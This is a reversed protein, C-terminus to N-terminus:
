RSANRVEFVRLGKGGGTQGRQKVWGGRGLPWGERRLGLSRMARKAGRREARTFIGLNFLRAPILSSRGRRLPAPRPPTKNQVPRNKPTEPQNSNLLGVTVGELPPWLWFSDTKVSERKTSWFACAKGGRRDPGKTKCPISIMARVIRCSGRTTKGCGGNIAGPTRPGASCGVSTCRLLKTRSNLWPQGKMLM